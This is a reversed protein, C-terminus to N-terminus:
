NWKTLSNPRFPVSNYVLILEYYSVLNLLTINYGWKAVNSAYVITIWCELWNINKAKNLSNDVTKQLVKVINIKNEGMPHSGQRENSCVQIRKSSAKYWTPNFSHSSSFTFYITFVVFDIVFLPSRIMFAWNYGLYYHSRCERTRYCKIWKNYM